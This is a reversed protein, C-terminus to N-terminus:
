GIVVFTPNPGPGGGRHSGLSDALIRPCVGPLGLSALSPRPRCRCRVDRSRSHLFAELNRDRSRGLVLPCPEHHVSGPSRRPHCSGPMSPLLGPPTRQERPALSRLTPVRSPSESDRRHFMMFGMVPLGTCCGPLTSFSFATWTTCSWAPPARSPRCGPESAVTAVGFRSASEEAGSVTSPRDKAVRLLCRGVSRFALSPPRGDLPAPLTPRESCDSCRTPVIVVCVADLPLRRACALHPLRPETSRLRLVRPRSGRIRGLREHEGPPTVTFTRPIGLGHRNLRLGVLRFEV